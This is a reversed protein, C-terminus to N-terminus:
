KRKALTALIKNTNYDIKNVDENMKKKISIKNNYIELLEKKKQSFLEDIVSNM